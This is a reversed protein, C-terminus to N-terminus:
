KTWQAIRGPLWAQQQDLGWTLATTQLGIISPIVATDDEGIRWVMLEAAAALGSPLMFSTRRRPPTPEQPDTTITRWRRGDATINEQWRTHHEYAYALAEAVLTGMSVRLGQFRLDARIRRLGAILPRDLVVNTIEKPTALLVDRTFDIDQLPATRM